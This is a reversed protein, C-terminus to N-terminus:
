QRNNTETSTREVSAMVPVTLATVDKPTQLQITKRFKMEDGADTVDVFAKIDQMQLSELEEQSGRVEVKVTSPMVKFRGANAVSSLVTVPISPFSRSSPGVVVPTERLKEENKFATEITLWTLAALLLSLLKWWFNHLIADSFGM